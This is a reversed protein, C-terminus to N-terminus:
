YGVNVWAKTPIEKTRERTPAFLATKTKSMDSRDISIMLRTIREKLFREDRDDIM